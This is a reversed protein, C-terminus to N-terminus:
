AKRRRIIKVTPTSHCLAAPKAISITTVQVLPYSLCIKATEEALKELLFFQSSQALHIIREEIEQYNVSYQLDDSEGAPQLDLEMEINLILTQPQQREQPLTGIVAEVTLNNLIISDM